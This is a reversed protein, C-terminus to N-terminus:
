KVTVTVWKSVNGARDVVRVWLKKKTTNVKVTRSTAKPSGTTVDVPSGGSSGKVQVKGIGSNADKARVTLKVAGKAAAIRVGQVTVNDSSTSTSTGSAGTMTPATTDLIIDDSYNASQTGFRQVFRAYVTKPLREDRSAVLTWPIEAYNDTLSFTESSKFGGDNSIIVQTAGSPGTAYITVSKKNTFEAADNVSIGTPRAATFSKIDGKVSGLTNSAEVRFYYRVSETLNLAAVSVDMSTLDSITRYDIRTGDSLDSKQGITFWVTTDLGGANVAANLTARGAAVSTPAGTTATPALGVTTFSQATPANTGTSNTAALTWYYRTGPKLGSITSSVSKASSLESLLSISAGTVTTSDSLDQKTGYKFVTTTSSRAPHVSGSLTATTATVSTAASLNVVPAVASITITQSVVPANSYYTGGSSAGISNAYVTCQGATKAHLSYDLGNPSEISCLNNDSTRYDTGMALVSATANLAQDDSALTMNALAPFNMTRWVPVTVTTPISAASNDGKGLQGNTNDGWCKIAGSSLLVCAHDNGVTVATATSVYGSNMRDITYRSASSPTAAAMYGGGTLQLAGWCVLTGAAELLCAAQESGSIATATTIDTNYVKSTSASSAHDSSDRILNSPGGGEIGHQGDENSGFCRAKGDADNIACTTNGFALVANAAPVVVVEEATSSVASDGLAGRTDAGWCRMTKDSRVICSHDTGADIKVANSVSPVVVPYSRSGSGSNGLRNGDQRGWCKASGDSIVACTHYVGASIQSISTLSATCSADVCVSVPSAQNSTDGNGLQGYQNRGWCKATGDALLACAHDAGATVQTATTIGPLLTMYNRDIQTGDGIQGLNGRGWCAVSGSNVIACTFGNGAALTGMASANGSSVGGAPEANVLAPTTVFVTTFLAIAAILRRFM